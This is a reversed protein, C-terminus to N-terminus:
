AAFDDRADKCEYLVNMNAMVAIHDDAFVTSDFVSEWTDHPTKLDEGRRWGGPRFIVLMTRCYVERDGKDRRPLRGGLFDLVFWQHRDLVFVARSNHMPHEPLFSLARSHDGAPHVDHEEVVATRSTTSKQRPNKSYTGRLYDYLTWTALEHPRFVYDDIKNLAVVAESAKALMVKDEDPKLTSHEDHTNNEFAREVTRVYGHWFFVKFKRNTYHDPHGLLYACCMPGGTEMSATLANVVKTIMM